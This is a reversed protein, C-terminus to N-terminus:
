GNNLGPRLQLYLNELPTDKFPIPVEEPAKTQNTQDVVPLAVPHPLAEFTITFLYEMEIDTEEVITEKVVLYYDSGIISYAKDTLEKQALEVSGSTASLKLKLVNDREPPTGFNMISM